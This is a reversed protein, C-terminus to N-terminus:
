RPRQPHETLEIAAPHGHGSIAPTKHWVGALVRMGSPAPPRPSAGPNERALRGMAPYVELLRRAEARDAEFNDKGGLLCDYIRAANPRTVNLSPLRAWATGAPM